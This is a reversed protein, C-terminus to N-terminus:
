PLSRAALLLRASFLSLLRRASRLRPPASTRHAPGCKKTALEGLLPGLEKERLSADFRLQKPKMQAWLLIERKKPLYLEVDSKMRRLIFPQLLTHLKSIVENRREKEAIERAAADMSEAGLISGFDFWSEFEGLNTFM